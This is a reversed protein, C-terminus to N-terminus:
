PPWAFRRKRRERHAKRLWEFGMDGPHRGIQSEHSWQLPIGRDPEGLLTAIEFTMIGESIVPSSMRGRARGPLFAWTGDDARGLWRVEAIPNGIDALFRNRIEADSLSIAVRLSTDPRGSEESSEDVRLLEGMGRYTLTAPDADDIDAPGSWIATRPNTEIVVSHAIRSSGATAPGPDGLHAM